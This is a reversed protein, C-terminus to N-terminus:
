CDGSKRWLKFSLKIYMGDNNKTLDELNQIYKRIVKPFPSIDGIISVKVNEEHCYHTLKKNLYYQFLKMLAKVEYVPRNWNETSFAYM